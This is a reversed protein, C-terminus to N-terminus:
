FFKVKAEDSDDDVSGLLLRNAAEADIGIEEVCEATIKEIFTHHEKAKVIEAEGFDDDCNIASALFLFFALVLAKM